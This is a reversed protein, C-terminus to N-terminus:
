LFLKIGDPPLLKGPGPVDGFVGRILGEKIQSLGKGSEKFAHLRSFAGAIGPEFAFFAAFGAKIKRIILHFQAIMADPDWLKSPDIHSLIQAELPVDTACM